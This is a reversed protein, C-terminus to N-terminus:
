GLYPFSEGGVGVVGVHDGGQHGIAGCPYALPDGAVRPGGGLLAARKGLVGYDVDTGRQDARDLQVLRIQFAQNVVTRHLDSQRHCCGLDDRRM